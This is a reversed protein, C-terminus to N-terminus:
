RSDAGNDRPISYPNALRSALTTNLMAGTTQPWLVTLGEQTQSLSLSVCPALGPVHPRSCDSDSRCVYKM